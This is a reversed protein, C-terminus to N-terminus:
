KVSKKIIEDIEKQTLLKNKLALKVLIKFIINVANRLAQIDKQAIYNQEILEVIYESKSKNGRARELKELTSQDLYASVKVKKTRAKAM